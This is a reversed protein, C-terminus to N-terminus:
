GGLAEVVAAAITRMLDAYTGDDPITAVELEVVRAGADSAVAAAVSQPTGIDTFLTTAGEARITRILEALDRASAEGSTSVGPIIAGIIDFGYRDAFYRLADHGTVLRRREEPITAVTAAIETDLAALVTGVTSARERIDIGEASLSVALATTVNRMASPDLWFHPDGQRRDSSGLAALPTIHDSAFFVDVGADAAEALISTLGEELGLGNAVVLDAAFVAEADRASPQWSHPDAGGGMLVNSVAADGVLDRVLSGLVETTVVVSLARPGSDDIAADGRGLVGSNLLMLSAALALTARWRRGSTVM